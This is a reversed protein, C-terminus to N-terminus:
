KGLKGTIAIRKGQNRFTEANEGPWRHGLAALWTGSKKNEKMQAQVLHSGWHEM